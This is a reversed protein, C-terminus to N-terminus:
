ICGGCCGYPVNANFVKEIEDAYQQLEKPLDDIDIEWPCKKIEENWDENFGWEGGSMWFIPYEGIINNDYDNGFTYIKGCIELMLLGECLCPYKGSYSIFKVNNKM